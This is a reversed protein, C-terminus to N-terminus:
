LGLSLASRATFSTLHHVQIFMYTLTDKAGMLMFCGPPPMLTHLSSHMKMKPQHAGAFHVNNINAQEMVSGVPQLYVDYVDSNGDARSFLWLMMM